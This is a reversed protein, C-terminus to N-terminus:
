LLLYSKAWVIFTNRRPRDSPACLFCFRSQFYGATGSEVLPIDGGDVDRERTSARRVRLTVCRLTSLRISEGLNDLANLVIDFSQFWEIDFQPEKINAHIPQIHM